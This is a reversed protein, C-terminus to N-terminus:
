LRGPEETWPIEWVLLILLFVNGEGLADEQGLSWVTVDASAPSNKVM